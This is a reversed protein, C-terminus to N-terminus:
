DNIKCSIDIMDLRLIATADINETFDIKKLFPNFHKMILNLALTKEEINEIFTIKGTGLISKYKMTSHCSNGSMELKLDTDFEFAVHDNKKLLDIKKGIKACHLYLINKDAIYGFNMPVIYPFEDDFIGIRIVDCMRIIEDILKKDTIERDKRRM